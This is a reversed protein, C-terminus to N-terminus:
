RFHPITVAEGVEAISRASLAESSDDDTNTCRCRGPGRLLATRGALSPSGCTWVLGKCIGM